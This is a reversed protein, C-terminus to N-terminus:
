GLSARQALSSFGSVALHTGHGPYYLFFRCPPSGFKPTGKVGDGREIVATSDTTFTARAVAGLKRQPLRLRDAKHILAPVQSGLTSGKPLLKQGRTRFHCTGFCCGPLFLSLGTPQFSFMACLFDLPALPSFQTLAASCTLPEFCSCPLSFFAFAPTLLDSFFSPPPLPLPFLLDAAPTHVDPRLVCVALECSGRPGHCM